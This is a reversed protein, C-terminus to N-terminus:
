FESSCGACVRLKKDNVVKFKARSGKDCRSCVVMVASASMPMAVSVIQGKEGEKRKKQNKKVINVAEVLVKGTKPFVRLVKSRKNKDKGSLVIINDGKKINM